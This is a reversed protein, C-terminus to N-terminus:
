NTHQQRRWRLWGSLMCAFFSLIWNRFRNICKVPRCCQWEDCCRWHYETYRRCQHRRLSRTWSDLILQIWKSKSLPIRACILKRCHKCEIRPHICSILIPGIRSGRICNPENWSTKGPSSGLSKRLSLFGPSNWRSRLFCFCKIFCLEDNPQADDCQFQHVVFSAADTHSHALASFSFTSHIFIWISALVITAATHIYIYGACTGCRWWLRLDCTLHWHFIKPKKTPNAKSRTKMRQQHKVNKRKWSILQDKTITPRFSIKWLLNFFFFFLDHLKVLRFIMVTVFIVPKRLVLSTKEEGGNKMWLYVCGTKLQPTTSENMFLSPWSSGAPRHILNKSETLKIVCVLKSTRRHVNWHRWQIAILVSVFFVTKQHIEENRHNIEVGISWVTVFFKPGVDSISNRYSHSFFLIACHSRISQTSISVTDSKM